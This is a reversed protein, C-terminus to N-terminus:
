LVRAGQTPAEFFVNISYSTQPGGELGRADEGDVQNPFRTAVWVGLALQRQGYPTWPLM